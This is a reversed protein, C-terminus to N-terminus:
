IRANVMINSEEPMSKRKVEMIKKKYVTAVIRGPMATVTRRSCSVPLLPHHYRRLKMGRTPDIHRRTSSQRSLSGPSFWHPSFGFPM